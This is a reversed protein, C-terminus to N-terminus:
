QLMVAITSNRNQAGCGNCVLCVAKVNAEFNCQLLRTYALRFKTSVEQFTWSHRVNNSKQKSKSTECVIDLHYLNVQITFYGSQDPLKPLALKHLQQKRRKQRNCPRKRHELVSTSTETLYNKM